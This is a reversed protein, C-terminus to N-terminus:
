VVLQEKLLSEKELEEKILKQLGPLSNRCFSILMPDWDMHLMYWYEPGYVEEHDSFYQLWEEKTDYDEPLNDWAERSEEKTNGNEMRRYELIHAKADKLTQRGNFKTKRGKALKTPLYYDDEPDLSLVFKRIDDTRFSCYGWEGTDGVVSMIGSDTLFMVSWYFGSGPEGKYTYTYTKM